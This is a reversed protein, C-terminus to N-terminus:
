KGGQKWGNYRVLWGLSRPHRHVFYHNKAYEGIVEERDWGDLADDWYSMLYEDGRRTVRRAAKWDDAGIESEEAWYGILDDQTDPAAVFLGDKVDDRWSSECTWWNHRDLDLRTVTVGSNDARTVDYTCGSMTSKYYGLPLPDPEVPQPDALLSDWRAKLLNMVAEAEASGWDKDGVATDDDNHKIWAVPDQWGNSDSWGVNWDCLDKFVVFGPHPLQTTVKHEHGLNCVQTEVHTGDWVPLPASLVENIVDRLTSGCFRGPTNSFGAMTKCGEPIWGPPRCM